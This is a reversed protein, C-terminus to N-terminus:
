YKSLVDQINTTGNLPASRTAISEINVKHTETDVTQTKTIFSGAVNSKTYSSYSEVKVDMDPGVFNQSSKFSSLALVGLIGCPIIFKLANTKM